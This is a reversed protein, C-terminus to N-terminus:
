ICITWPILATERVMTQCKWLQAHIAQCIPIPASWNGTALCHTAKTGTLAFGPECAFACTSQFAFVGLPHSCDMRSKEPRQLSHCQIAECLPPKETWTGLATCQVQEMGIRVFGKNCSFTCMSSYMFDGYLHSCKLEGNKPSNLKPCEIAKCHPLQETWNGGALCDLVELGVLQFGESCSFNCSSGYAFNAYSHICSFHGNVPEHLAPCKIAPAPRQQPWNLGRGYGSQLAAEWAEGRASSGTGSWRPTVGGPRASALPAQPRLGSQPAVEWAEGLLLLWRSSGLGRLGSLPKRPLPAWPRARSCLRRGPKLLPPPARGSGGVCLGSLPGQRPRLLRHGSGRSHLQEWAKGLDSSGAAPLGLRPPWRLAKGLGSSGAGAGVTSRRLPRASPPPVAALAGGRLWRLPRASAPSGVAPARSRLQRGPRASSPPARPRLWLRLAAELCQRPWPAAAPAGVALRRGPKALDPPAWPPGGGRLQRLPRSSGSSRGWCAVSCACQRSRGHPSCSRGFAGGCHCGLLARPAIDFKQRVSSFKKKGKPKGPKTASGGTWPLSGAGEPASVLIQCRTLIALLFDNHSHVNDQTLLRRAELDFEEKSIKQKFWLKLNAWYQKVNEGLAESLNKKAVELESVYTAMAIETQRGGASTGGCQSPLPLRPVLGQLRLQKKAESSGGAFSGGM